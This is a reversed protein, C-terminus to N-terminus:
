LIKPTIFILLEEGQNSDAKGKFLWGLVPIKSFFPVGAESENKTEKFLGGIVTTDGDKILVETKAHKTLIPPPSNPLQNAFDAEDKNADIELRIFNDPTVHPIVKLKLTANKFETKTGDASTTQYPIQRGSEILAEINNMTSIKPMSLIRGKGQNQLAMLQMDLMATSDVSGLRLGLAGVPSSSTPANVISGAASSAAGGAVGSLGVTSPFNAGTARNYAGGWRIGIERSFSHSVEVIRAEILVQVTRKDLIEILREMEALREKTDQIILTNTRDNIDISGRPGAIAKLNEKLKACSEYNVQFVKLYLTEVKDSSQKESALSEKEKSIEDVTAVRIINANRVMGLQNNKLITELAMDWPVDVLKMTVKGKVKESTIVNLGSVDAIIRLINQIDADQFDLSIKQGTYDAATKEPPSVEKVKERKETPVESSSALIADPGIDFIIKGDKEFVNASTFENLNAIVKVSPPKTTFQFLAVNKVLSDKVTVSLLKENSKRVRTDMLDLTIRNLDRRKVMEYRPKDGRYSVIVRALGKEEVLQIDSIESEGAGLATAPEPEATARSVPNVSVIIKGDKIRTVKYLVADKLFVELRSNGDKANFQPVVQWAVGKAIEFPARFASIDTQPMDIVLRRPDELKFITYQLKGSAEVSLELGGEKEVPSVNTVYVTGEPAANEAAPRGTESPSKGASACAIVALALAFLSLFSYRRKKM